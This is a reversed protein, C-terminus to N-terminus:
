IELDIDRDGISISHRLSSVFRKSQDAGKWGQISRKRGKEGKGQCGEHLRLHMGRGGCGDGVGDGEGEKDV